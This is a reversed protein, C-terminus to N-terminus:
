ACPGSRCVCWGCWLVVPDCRNLDRVNGDEQMIVGAGLFGIGSVVYAIVRIEGEPGMLRSAM